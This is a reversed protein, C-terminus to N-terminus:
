GSFEQNETALSFSQLNDQKETNSAYCTRLIRVMLFFKRVLFFFTKQSLIQKHTLIYLIYVKM